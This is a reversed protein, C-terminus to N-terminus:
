DIHSPIHGHAFQGFAKAEIALDLAVIGALNDVGKIQLRRIEIREQRPSRLDVVLTMAALHEPLAAILRQTKRTVCSVPAGCRNRSCAFKLRM